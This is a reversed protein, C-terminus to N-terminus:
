SELNVTTPSRLDEREKSFKGGNCVMKRRGLFNLHQWSSRGCVPCTFKSRYGKGVYQTGAVDRVCIAAEHQITEAVARFPPPKPPM